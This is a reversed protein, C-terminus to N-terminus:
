FHFRITAQITSRLNQAFERYTHVVSAFTGLYLLVIMTGGVYTNASSIWGAVVRTDVSCHWMRGRCVQGGTMILLLQQLNM